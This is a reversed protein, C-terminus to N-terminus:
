ARNGEEEAADHQSVKTVNREAVKASAAADAEKRIKELACNDRGCGRIAGVYNM